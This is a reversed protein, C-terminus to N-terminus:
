SEAWALIKKTPYFGHEHPEFITAYGAFPVWEQHGRLRGARIWSITEDMMRSRKATLSQPNSLLTSLSGNRISDAYERQQQEYWRSMWFGRMAIDNFILPGAGLKIPARNMAGYTVM